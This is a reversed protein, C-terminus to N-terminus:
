VPERLRKTMILRTGIGSETPSRVEVSTMVQRIIDLGRGSTAAALVDAEGDFTPVEPEGRLDISDSPFGVGDDEVALRIDDDTIEAVLRFCGDDGDPFAHRIVNACAEDLALIM